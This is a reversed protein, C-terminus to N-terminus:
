PQLWASLDRGTMVALEAIDDAFRSRASARTQEDLQPYSSYRVNARGLLRRLPRVPLHRIAPRLRQSRYTVFQNRPRPLPADWAPDVGVHAYIARRLRAPDNRLDDFFVVLLDASPIDLAIQRLQRAYLGREVYAFRLRDRPSASPGIPATSTDLADRFDRPEHGRTRNHWYHSYAREVPDRLICLLRVDPLDDNIRRRAVPDVMYEPSGEGLRQGPTAACFHGAYWRPSRDYFRDFYHIEDTPMFVDPHNGLMRNVTSTGSKQAGILLFDPLRWRVPEARRRESPSTRSRDADTWPIRASRSRHRSRRLDRANSM